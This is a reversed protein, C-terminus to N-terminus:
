IKPFRVHDLNKKKLIQRNANEAKKSNRDTKKKPEQRNVNVVNEKEIEFNKRVNEAVVMYTSKADFNSTNAM